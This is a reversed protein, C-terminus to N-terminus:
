PRIKATIIIINWLWHFLIASIFGFAITQTAQFVTVTVIGFCAHSLISLLMAIGSFRGGIRLDWVGELIGFLVHVALIDMKLFYPLFTKLLEEVIPSYSTIIRVGLYKLLVQNIVFAATASLIAVLIVM